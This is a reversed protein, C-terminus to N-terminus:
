LVLEKLIIEKGKIIKSCHPTNWIWKDILLERVSTLGISMTLLRERICSYVKQMLNGNKEDYSTQLLTAVTYPINWMGCQITLPLKLFSSHHLIDAIQYFANVNNTEDQTSDLSISVRASAFTYTKDDASPVIPNFTVADCFPRCRHFVVGTPIKIGRSNLFCCLGLMNTYCILLRDDPNASFLQISPANKYAGNNHGSFFYVDENSHPIMMSKLDCTVKALLTNSLANPTAHITPLSPKSIQICCGPNLLPPKTAYALLGSIINEFGTIKYSGRYMEFTHKDAFNGYLSHLLTHALCARTSLDDLTLLFDDTWDARVSESLITRWILRQWDWQQVYQSPIPKAKWADAAACREITFQAAAATIDVPTFRMTHVDFFQFPYLKGWCIMAMSTSRGWYGDLSNDASHGNGVLSYPDWANVWLIKEMQVVFIADPIRFDGVKIHLSELVNRDLEIKEIEDDNEDLLAISPNSFIIRYTRPNSFVVKLAELVCKAYGRTGLQLCFHRAFAYLGVATLIVTEYGYLQAHVAVHDMWRTHFQILFNELKPKNQHLQKSMLSEIQNPSDGAPGYVNIVHAIKQENKFWVPTKCFISIQCPFYHYFGQTYGCLMKLNDKSYNQSYKINVPDRYTAACVAEEVSCETGDYYVIVDQQFPLVFNNYYETYDKPKTFGNYQTFNPVYQYYVKDAMGQILPIVNITHYKSVDNRDLKASKMRADHKDRLTQEIHANMADLMEKQAKKSEEKEREREMEKKLMEREREHKTEEQLHPMLYELADCYPTSHTNWSLSGNVGFKSISALGEGVQIWNTKDPIRNLHIM